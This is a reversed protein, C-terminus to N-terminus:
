FDPMEDDAFVDEEQETTAETHSEPLETQVNTARASTLASSGTLSPTCHTRDPSQACQAPRNFVGVHVEM